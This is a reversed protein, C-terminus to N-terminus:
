HPWFRKGRSRMGSVRIQRSGTPPPQQGPEADKPTLKKVFSCALGGPELEVDAFDFDPIGYVRIRGSGGQIALLTPNQVKWEWHANPYQAKLQTSIRYNIHRLLTLSVESGPLGAMAKEAVCM